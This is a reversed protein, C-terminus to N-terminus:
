ETLCILNVPDVGMAEAIKMLNVVSINISGRLYKHLLSQRVGTDLFLQTQSINREEMLDALKIAFKRRWEVEDFEIETIIDDVFDTLYNPRFHLADKAGLVLKAMTYATPTVKCSIYSSLVHPPIDSMIALQTQTVDQRSLLFCLRRSFEKRFERTTMPKPVDVYREPEDVICMLYAPSVNLAKAMKYMYQLSPASIAQIYNYLSKETISTVAAVDQIDMGQMAMSKNLRNSFKDTWEAFSIVAM